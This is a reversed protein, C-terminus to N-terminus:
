AAEDEETEHAILEEIEGVVTEATMKLLAAMGLPTLDGSAASLSLDVSGKPVTVLVFARCGRLRKMADAHTQDWASISAPGTVFEM